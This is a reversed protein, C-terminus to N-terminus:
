VEIVAEVRICSARFSPLFFYWPTLRLSDVANPAEDGVGQEMAQHHQPEVSDFTGPSRGEKRGIKEHQLCWDKAGLVM